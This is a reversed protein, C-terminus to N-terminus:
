RLYHYSNNILIGIHRQEQKQQVLEPDHEKTQRQEGEKHNRNVGCDRSIRYFTPQPKKFQKATVPFPAYKSFPPPPISRSHLSHELILHDSDRYLHHLRIFSRVSQERCATPKRTVVNSPVRKTSVETSDGRRGRTTAVKSAVSAEELYAMTSNNKRGPICWLRGGVSICFLLEKRKKDFSVASQLCEQDDDADKSRKRNVLGTSAVKRKRERAGFVVAAIDVAWRM